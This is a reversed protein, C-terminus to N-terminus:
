SEHNATDGELDDAKQISGLSVDFYRRLALASPHREGAGIQDQLGSWDSLDPSISRGSASWFSM